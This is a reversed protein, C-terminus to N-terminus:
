VMYLSKLLGPILLSPLFLDIKEQESFQKWNLLCNLISLVLSVVCLM